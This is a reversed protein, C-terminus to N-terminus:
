KQQELEPRRGVAKRAVEPTILYPGQSTDRWIQKTLETNGGTLVYSLAGSLWGISVSAIKAPIFVVNGATQGVGMGAAEIADEARATSGAFSVVLILSIIWFSVSRSTKLM